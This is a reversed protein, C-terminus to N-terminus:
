HYGVSPCGSISKRATSSGAAHEARVREDLERFAGQQKTNVLHLFYQIVMVNLLGIRRPASESEFPKAAPAEPRSTRNYQLGLTFRTM